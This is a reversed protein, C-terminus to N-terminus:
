PMMAVAEVCPPEVTASASTFQSVWKTARLSPNWAKAFRIAPCAHAVTSGGQTSATAIIGQNTAKGSRKTGVALGRERLLRVAKEMDGGADQLAKKCEMMSVNTADRLEKVLAASIESM